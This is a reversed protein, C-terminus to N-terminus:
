NISPNILEIMNDMCFLISVNIKKKSLYEKVAVTLVFLSLSLSNTDNVHSVYGCYYPVSLDIVQDLPNNTRILDRNSFPLDFILGGCYVNSHCKSPVCDTRGIELVLSNSFNHCFELNRWGNYEDIFIPDFNPFYNYNPPTACYLVIKKYNKYKDCYSINHIYQIDNEITFFSTDFNSCLNKFKNCSNKDHM